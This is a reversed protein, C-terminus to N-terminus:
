ITDTRAKFRAIFYLSGTILIPENLQSIKDWLSAEQITEIKGYFETQNVDWFLRDKSQVYYIKEAICELTKVIKLIDKTKSVQLIVTWKKDPTKEKLTQVLKEVAPPNHAGDLLLSKTGLKVPTMRGWHTAKNLDKQLVSLPQNPLFYRLVAEALARNQRQADGQLRSDKPLSKLSEVVTLPAKMKKSTEKLVTMAEQCQQVTFVPTEEQIIGAKESAIESLSEGLIEEHDMGISTIVAAAKSCVNTADLRGGLGTELLLIDPQKQQIYLFMMLTLCEFETLASYNDLALVKQFWKSFEVESIPIGQFQIRERYSLIHPSTFSGVTKGAGIFGAKLFALTSGKGNTGSLHIVTTMLTEPHGLKALADKLTDLNYQIGRRIAKRKLTQITNLYDM